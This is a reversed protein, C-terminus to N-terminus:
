EHGANTLGELVVINPNGESAAALISRGDSAWSVYRAIFTTHDGFDTIQRWQGNMTSLAWINTVSPRLRLVEIGRVEIMM